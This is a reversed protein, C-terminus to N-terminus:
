LLAAHQKQWTNFDAHLLERAQDNTGGKIGVLIAHQEGLVKLIAVGFGQDALPYAFDETVYKATIQGKSLTRFLNAKLIGNPALIRSVSEMAQKPHMSYCMADVSIAAGFMGDPIGHLAEVSTRHMKGRPLVSTHPNSLQVSSLATGHVDLERFVGRTQLEAPMDGPGTGIDLMNNQPLSRARDAFAGLGRLMYIYDAAKRQEYWAAAVESHDDTRARRINAAAADRRRQDPSLMSRAKRIQNELM